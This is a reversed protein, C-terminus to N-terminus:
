TAIGPQQTARPTDSRRGARHARHEALLAEAEAARAADLCYFRRPPLGETPNRDEWRAILIRKQEALQRLAPYLTSSSIGTERLLEFGHAERDPDSAFLGLIAAAPDSLVRQKRSM